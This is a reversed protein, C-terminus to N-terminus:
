TQTVAVLSSEGVTIKIEKEQTFSHQFQTKKSTPNLHQKHTNGPLPKTTGNQIQKMDCIMSTIHIYARANPVLKSITTVWRKVSKQHIQKILVM